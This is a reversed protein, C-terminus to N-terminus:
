NQVTNNNRVRYRRIQRFRWLKKQFVIPLIGGGQIIKLIEAFKIIHKKDQGCVKIKILYEISRKNFAFQTVCHGLSLYFM